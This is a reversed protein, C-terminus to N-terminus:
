PSPTPTAKPKKQFPNKITITKAPVIAPGPGGPFIIVVGAKPTSEAHVDGTLTDYTMHDAKMSKPPQVVVAHGDLKLLHAKDDLLGADADATTNNHTYHVSGTATYQKAADDIDLRDTTLTTPGSSTAGAHTGFAGNIDHVVVDGFFSALHKKGNGSARDATVDGGTRTVTVHNPVSFDGSKANFDAVTYHVVWADPPAPSGSPEPSPTPTPTASAGPSPSAKAIPFEITGAKAIAHGRGTATNYRVRDARLTSAGRVIKVDGDLVLDKSDDDLSGNQSTANTEGQLYHVHGTAVYTKANGDIALEDTTLTAKKKRTDHMVVHGTLTLTKDDSNGVASDARVDGGPRTIYVPDPMTYDGTERDFTMNIFHVTWDGLSVSPEVPVIPLTMSPAAGLTLAVLAIAALARKM